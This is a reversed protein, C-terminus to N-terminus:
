YIRIWTGNGSVSVCQYAFSSNVASTTPTTGVVTGSGSVGATLGTIIQSIFGRITQGVRSNASTPLAITLALLTGAPTIYLTEDSKGTAASITQGTTPSSPTVIPLPASAAQAAAAKTTADSAAATQVATDATAQATSVPKSADATNDVNALGVDDKVLAVNGTLAHGGVTRSVPVPTYGLLDIIADAPLDLEDRTISEGLNVGPVIPHSDNVILIGNVVTYYM